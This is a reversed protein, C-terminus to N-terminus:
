NFVLLLFTTWSHSRCYFHCISVVCTNKAFNVRRITARYFRNDLDYLAFCADEKKWLISDKRELQKNRYMKELIEKIEDSVTKRSEELAYIILRQSVYMPFAVFQNEAIREAPLWSKVEGRKDTVMEYKQMKLLPLTHQNCSSFHMHEIIDRDDDISHPKEDVYHDHAPNIMSTIGHFSASARAVGLDVLSQNINVYEIKEPLLANFIKKIGWLIIGKDNGNDDSIISMAIEEFTEIKDNILDQMMSATIHQVRKVSALKMKWACDRVIQLERNIEKLDSGKCKITKGIDRLYVMCSDSTPKNVIKGRLWEGSGEAPDVALCYDGIEWADKATPEEAEVYSQVDFRLRNLADEYKSFCVYIEDIDIVQKIKVNWARSIKCTDILQGLSEPRQEVTEPPSVISLPKQPPPQPPSENSQESEFSGSAIEFSSRKTELSGREAELSGREMRNLDIVCEAHQVPELEVKSKSKLRSNASSSTNAAFAESTADDEFSSDDSITQAPFINNVCHFENNESKYYLYIDSSMFNARNVFIYFDNQEKLIQHFRQHHQISFRELPQATIINILSCRVAMPKINAFKENIIRLDHWNIREIIGIDFLLADTSNEHLKLIRCRQWGKSSKAVCILGAKMCYVLPYQTNEYETTLTRQFENVKDEDM